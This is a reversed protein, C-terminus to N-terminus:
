QSSEENTAILLSEQLDLFEPLEGIRRVFKKEVVIGNEVAVLFPLSTISLAQMAKRTRPGVVIDDRVKTGQMAQLVEEIASNATTHSGTMFILTVEALAPRLGIESATEICSGCGPSLFALIHRRRDDGEFRTSLESPLAIGVVPGDGDFDVSEFPLPGADRALGLTAVVRVLSAVIITLVLLWISVLALM